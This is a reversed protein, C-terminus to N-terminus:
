ATAADGDGVIEWTGDPRRVRDVAPPNGILVTDAPVDRRVVSNPGIIAREGITIGGTIVTNNGIWAGRKITLPRGVKLEGWWPAGGADVSKYDHITDSITVGHGIASDGELDIGNVAVLRVDFGFYCGDGIRIVPQGQPALAEFVVGPLITVGSGIIVSSTNGLNRAPGKVVSREGFGCFGEAMVDGSRIELLRARRAEVEFALRQM